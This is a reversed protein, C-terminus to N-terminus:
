IKRLILTLKKKTMKPYDDYKYVVLGCVVIKCIQVVLKLVYVVMKCNQFNLNLMENILLFKKNNLINKFGLSLKEYNSTFVKTYCYM